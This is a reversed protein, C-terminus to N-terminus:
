RPATACRFTLRIPAGVQCGREIEPSLCYGLDRLSWCPAAAGSDCGALPRQTIAKGDYGLTTETVTCIPQVGDRAPDGDILGAPLCPPSYHALRETIPRLAAEVPDSPACLDILQGRDEFAEVFTRLRVAPFVPSGNRVCEPRITRGAGTEVLGYRSPWAALVSVAVQYPRAKLGSFFTAYDGVPLLGGGDAVAACDALDAGTAAESLPRGACRVGAAHCRYGLAPDDPSVPPAGFLASGAPASCDDEDTVILIVLVADRRLFHSGDQPDGELAARAAALPQEWGCGDTGTHAACAFADALTGSYSSHRDCVQTAQLYGGAPVCTRPEAPACAPFASLGPAPVSSSIVKVRLEPVGGPIKDLERALRAVLADQQASMSASDDMVVLLDFARAPNIEYVTVSEEHVCSGDPCPVGPAQANCAALALFVLRGPHRM